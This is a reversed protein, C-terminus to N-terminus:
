GTVADMDIDREQTGPLPMAYTKGGVTFTTALQSTDVPILGTESKVDENETEETKETVESDYWNPRETTYGLETRRQTIHERAEDLDGFHLDSKIRNCIQCAAVWNGRPNSQLYAYPKFHEWNLELAVSKGHRYVVSDLPLFCYLCCGRQEILM